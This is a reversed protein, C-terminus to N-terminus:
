YITCVNRLYKNLEIITNFSDKLARNMLINM